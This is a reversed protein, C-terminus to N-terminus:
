PYLFFPNLPSIKLVWWQYKMTSKVILKKMITMKLMLSIMSNARTPHYYSMLSMMVTEAIKTDIIQHTPSYAPHAQIQLVKKRRQKRRERNKMSKGLIVM